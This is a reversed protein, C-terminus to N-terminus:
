KKKTMMREVIFDVSIRGPGFSILALLMGIYIVPFEVGNNLIVFSGSGTLWEYNGYEKLIGRAAELREAVAPTSDSAIALWGHDLHVTLIAVIMVILLPISIIRTGLGLFLLVFGIVETATAMYANLTPLPMGMSDFWMAIAGIDNLKLLGTQMFVYALIFRFMLLPIDELMKAGNLFRNYLEIM